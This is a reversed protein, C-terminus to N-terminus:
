NGMIVSVFLLFVYTMIFQFSWPCDTFGSQSHNEKQLLVYTGCCTRFIPFTNEFPRKNRKLLFLWFDLFRRNGKTNRFM